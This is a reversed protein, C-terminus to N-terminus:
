VLKKVAWRQGLSRHSHGKALICPKRGVCVSVAFVYPIGGFCESNQSGFCVCLPWFVHGKALFLFRLKLVRSNTVSKQKKLHM